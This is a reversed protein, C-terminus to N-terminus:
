RKRFKLNTVLREAAADCQQQQTRPATMSITLLTGYYTVYTQRVYLQQKATVTSMRVERAPLNAVERDRSGLVKTSPSVKKILELQRTVQEQLPGEARNRDITISMPLTAKTSSLMTLSKDVFGDPVEFVVEDTLYTVTGRLENAAAM